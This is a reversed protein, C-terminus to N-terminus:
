QDSYVRTSEEKTVPTRLEDTTLQVRIRLDGPQLGQVRVRYTTDAKPALRALGEFLVRNAELQYRAPGEAAVARMEAPLLVALQVNTAAKSGQNLVRIEYSTEGGVEIPDDVDVVEFLIAAIGEILVPLQDEDALGLESSARVQIVQEGMEVPIATLEVTGQERMPLEELQWQVTRSSEDYYGANNASVFQMGPPLNAVLLINRAPATGPNGISVEYTAERELYRRRPGDLTVDLQPAIVEVVLQNEARLNADARAALVNTAPGPSQATLVLELQRSEGPMLDGVEYELESGAPHQMGPPVREEVVVGTAVGSGPNSITISLTADQGILVQSPAAAEVVLEPKTAVTRASAEAAFRVSAVSGIEGEAIPMLEIEATFEGGPKFAGIPWVLEGHVGRSARPNTNLLRTGRPIEDCLEVDQATVLGSNRLTIQFLAPKGVQIEAPAQKELTLQPSQAGELSAAGPTGSGDGSDGAPMEGFADQSTLPRPSAVPGSLEGRPERSYVGGGAPLMSEAAADLEPRLPHPEAAPQATTEPGSYRDGWLPNSIPSSDFSPMPGAANPEAVGTDASPLPSASGDPIEAPPTDPLISGGAVEGLPPGSVGPTGALTFPDATPGGPAADLTLPPHVAAPVPERQIGATQVAGGPASPTPPGEPRLPNAQGFDPFERPTEVGRQAQAIAILGLVVVTALASIRVLLRKM